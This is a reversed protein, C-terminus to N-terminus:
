LKAVRVIKKQGAVEIVLFYVGSPLDSLYFEYGYEQQHDGQLSRLVLNREPSILRINVPRTESLVITGSLKDHTPVPYATVSQILRAGSEKTRGSSTSREIIELSGRYEDQCQALSATLIVEYRGPDDFVM